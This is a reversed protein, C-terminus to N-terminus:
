QHYKCYLPWHKNSYLNSFNVPPRDFTKRSQRLRFRKGVGNKERKALLFFLKGQFKMGTRLTTVQIFLPRFLFTMSLDLIM